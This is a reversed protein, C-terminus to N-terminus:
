TLTDRYRKVCSDPITKGKSHSTRWINFSNRMKDYYNRSLYYDNDSKKKPSKITHKIINNIELIADQSYTTRHSNSFQM